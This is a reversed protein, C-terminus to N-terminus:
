YNNNLRIKADKLQQKCEKAADSFVNTSEDIDRFEGALLYQASIERKLGKIMDMLKEREKERNM